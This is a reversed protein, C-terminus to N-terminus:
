HDFMGAKISLAVPVVAVDSTVKSRDQQIVNKATLRATLQTPDLFFKAESPEFSPEEYDVATLSSTVIPQPNTM